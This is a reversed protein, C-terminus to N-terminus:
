SLALSQPHVVVLALWSDLNHYIIRLATYEIDFQNLGDRSLSVFFLKDKKLLLSM